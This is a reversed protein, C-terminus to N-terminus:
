TNYGTQHHCRWGACVVMGQVFLASGGNPACPVQGAVGFARPTRLLPHPYFPRFLIDAKTLTSLAAPVSMM